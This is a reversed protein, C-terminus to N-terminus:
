YKEGANSVSVVIAGLVVPHVCFKTVKKEEEPRVNRGIRISLTTKVPPIVDKGLYGFM